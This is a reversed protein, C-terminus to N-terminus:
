YSEDDDSSSQLEEQVEELLRNIEGLDKSMSFHDLICHRKYLTKAWSLRHYAAVNHSPSGDLLRKSETFYYDGIDRVLRSLLDADFDFMQIYDQYHLGWDIDDAMNNSFVYISMCPEKTVPDTFTEKFRELVIPVVERGLSGSTIFFIRKNRNHEFCNLCNEINTFTSLLFYVSEPHVPLSGEHHVLLPDELHISLSREARRFDEYDRDVLAVRTESKPDTQIGFTKKLHEHTGPEGIHKDLWIVIHNPNDEHSVTTNHSM